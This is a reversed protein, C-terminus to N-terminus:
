KSDELALRFREEVRQFHEVILDDLIQRCTELDEAQIQQVVKPITSIELMERVQLNYRLKM